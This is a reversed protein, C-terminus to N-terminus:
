RTSLTFVKSGRSFGVRGSVPMLRMDAGLATDKATKSGGAGMATPFAEVEEEETLSVCLKGFVTFNIGSPSIDPVTRLDYSAFSPEFRFILRDYKGGKAGVVMLVGGDFKADVVRYSDLEPIRCQYGARSSPFLSVFVSGIMNQIACGEYLRSASEMVNAVPHAATVMVRDPLEHLGLEIVQGLNRVYFRDGSRALENANLTVATVRREAFELLSLIGDHLHLGIPRNNKPTFGLLLAGGAAVGYVRHGNLFVGQDTQVLCDGGSEQYGLVNGEFEGILTVTLNGGFATATRVTALTAVVFPALGDPPPPAVRKGDQLVATLWARQHPPIVDPSFCAKPIAVTRDFVSVHHRMRHELRQDAPVGASGPHTGRYPHIGLYMQCALVAFSFWDSLESFQAPKVSWDRVSPMIVEAKFHETQYSDVDILYAEDFKNSALINLENLDVVLVGARHVNEVHKQLDAVLKRMMDHTIANRDRFARPFLQCLVYTDKLFSMTYGIPQGGSAGVLLDQPKVVHTDQIRSLENFKAEPITDKPDSYVKYATGNRQYVSAQGGQAVFNSQTLTIEGKGKVFVKM